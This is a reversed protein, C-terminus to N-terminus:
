GLRILHVLKDVGAFRVSIETEHSPHHRKAAQGAGVGAVPNPVLADVAGVREIHRCAAATFEGEPIKGPEQQGLDRGFRHLGLVAFDNQAM